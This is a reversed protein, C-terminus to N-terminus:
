SDEGAQECARGPRGPIRRWIWRALAEGILLGVGSAAIDGWEAFRDPTFSQLVEILGAYALLGSLVPVTRGLWARHALLALVAFGLAHNGKDWGTSPLPASAPALCLVLMTLMAAFLLWRWLSAGAMLRALAM